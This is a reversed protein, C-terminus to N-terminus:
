GRGTKRVTEIATQYASLVGDVMTDVSFAAQVQGRLQRAIAATADPHDLAQTIAQALAAADVPPVLTNSLPGYIEPIGGVKTTILPKGGAAAELVVYPLSEARSPVVMIRGLALAQRAPMAPM